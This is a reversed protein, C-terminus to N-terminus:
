RKEKLLSGAAGKGLSAITEDLWRLESDLYHIQHDILLQIGSGYNLRIVRRLGSGHQPAARIGDLEAALAARRLRLLESAEGSELAGLFALGIDGASRASAFSSLNERLLRQFEAEGGPTLHYVKRPPRNGERHETATVWGRGEMKDLLFYATAKKVDACFSLTREIYENLQYGHMEGSRLLGLLLMEREM